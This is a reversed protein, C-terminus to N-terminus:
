TSIGHGTGTKHGYNFPAKAQRTMIEAKRRIKEPADKEIAKVSAVMRTSVNLMEAAEAQSTQLNASNDNPRHAPMNALKSAVVARQSESLHKAQRTAPHGTAQTMPAGKGKGQIPRSIQMDDKGM